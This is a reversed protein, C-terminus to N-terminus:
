FIELTSCALTTPAKIRLPGALDPAGISAQRLTDDVDAVLSRVRGIWHLGSETLTVSRTTRTFLKTKVERELQDVRKTLVSTALGSRRAAASFSRTEAVALFARLNQLTGM